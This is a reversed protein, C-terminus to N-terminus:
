EGGDGNGKSPIGEKLATVIKPVVDQPIKSRINRLEALVYRTTKETNMPPSIEKVLKGIQRVDKAKCDLYKAVDSYKEKVIPEGDTPPRVTRSRPASLVDDVSSTSPSNAFKFPGKVPELTVYNADASAVASNESEDEDENSSGRGGTRAARVTGVARQSSAPRTRNRVSLAPKEQPEEIEEPEESEDPVDDLEDLEDLEDQPDDTEDPLDDDEDDDKVEPNEPRVLRARQATRSGSENSRDAQAAANSLSDRQISTIACDKCLTASEGEIVIQVVSPFMEGCSDCLVFESVIDELREQVSILESYSDATIPRKGIEGLEASLVLIRDEFSPRGAAM